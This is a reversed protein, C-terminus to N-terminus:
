PKQKAKKQEDLLAHFLKKGADVVAALAPDKALDSEQRAEIMRLGGYTLISVRFVNQQTPRHKDFPRAKGVLPKAANIVDRVLTNIRTEETNDWVITGGKRHTNLYLARGDSYAGLTEGASEVPVEIVVGQVEDAIEPPPKEGLQRLANWVWLRYRAEHAPENLSQNLIKKAEEPKGEGVYKYAREFVSGPTNYQKVIEELSQDAFFLSKYSELDAAGDSSGAQNANQSVQSSEGNANTRPLFQCSFSLLGLAIAAFTLSLSRM